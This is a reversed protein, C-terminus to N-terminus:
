RGTFSPKRKERFASVAEQHDATQGSLAEYGLSADMLEHALRRLPINAVTKTWRIALTAGQTLRNAMAEVKADLEEAPVVHNILGIREAREATLMEGTMLFEKAKAYGILQPWIVAGGDGAVLGMRVHPDGIQVGEAAIIVDCLLAITAGLGAAAGNLRCIIPKELELLSFVIAKAESACARFAGPDDIMQQMWAADGGACFARGAGTLVVVDCEADRGVDDFVTSLERHLDPGVANMTEPRNITVWLVRGRGEFALTKYRDYATM